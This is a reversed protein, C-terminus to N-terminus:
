VPIMAVLMAAPSVALGDPLREELPTDELAPEEWPPVLDLNGRLLNRFQVPVVVLCVPQLRDMSMWHPSSSQGQVLPQPSAVQSVQLARGKSM